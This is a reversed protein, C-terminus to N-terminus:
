CDYRTQLNIGFPSESEKDAIELRVILARKKEEDVETEMVLKLLTEITM